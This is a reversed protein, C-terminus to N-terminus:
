KSRNAKSQAMLFNLTKNDILSNSVGFKSICFGAAIIAYNIATDIDNNELLKSALASIFADSAGTTDIVDVNPAKYYKQLGQTRLYTGNEGLTIILTKIGKSIFYDAADEINNKNSLQLAENRNPIFVDIMKFDSDDMTEITSPKFIVRSGYFQAIKMAERVTEMPIESQLLCYKANEFLKMNQKVDSPYFSTNAGKAVTITSDGTKDIYIYAKGTKVDHSSIISSIDVGHSALSQCVFNGGADKGIKGILTVEKGLMSVGIAQNLGKGGPMLICESATKTKGPIPFDDVYLINDVNISGVVIIKSNRMSFPIDITYLNEIKPEFVFSNNSVEKQECLAVIKEGIFEGFQYNPIKITSISSIDMNERVDDRLSILSLELPISIHIVKLQQLLEETISYHSCVMATINKTKFIDIFPEDNYIVFDDIFNINNDFLCQRYGLFVAKSRLSNRKIFCSINTHGKNILTQTALYGMQKYDISYNYASVEPSNIFITKINAKNIQPLLLLSNSSIPEWIIGDLNKSLIKSINMKETEESDNSDFLMLSYGNNNLCEILGNIILSSNQMKKFVLAIILNRNQVTNRPLGYPTYNYKKVTELVRNITEQSIDDAKNNIIKSVTSISVGALNAIKKISTM